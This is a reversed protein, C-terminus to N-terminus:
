FTQRRAAGAMGSSRARSRFAHDPREEEYTRLALVMQDRTNAAPLDPFRGCLETYFEKLQAVRTGGGEAEFFSRFAEMALREGHQTVKAAQTDGDWRAVASVSLQGQRYYHAFDHQAEAELDDFTLTVRIERSTDHGHFDAETAQKANM